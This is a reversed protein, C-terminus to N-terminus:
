PVPGAKGGKKMLNKKHKEECHPMHRQGATENFKRGCWKCQIRDDDIEDAASPQQTPRFNKTGFGAGEEEVASSAQMAQRFQM